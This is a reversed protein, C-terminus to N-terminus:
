YRVVQRVRKVTSPCLLSHRRNRRGSVDSVLAQLEQVEDLQRQLAYGHVHLALCSLVLAGRLTVYTVSGFGAM